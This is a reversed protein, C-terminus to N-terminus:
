AACRALFHAANYPRNEKFIRSKGGELVTLKINITKGVESETFLHGTKVRYVSDGSYWALDYSKNTDLRMIRIKSNTPKANGNFGLQTNNGDTFVGCILRNITTNLFKNPSISGWPGWWGIKSVTAYGWKTESDGQGITLSLTISEEKTFAMLMAKKLMM